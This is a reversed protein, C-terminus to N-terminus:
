TRTTFYSGFIYAQNDTSERDMRFALSLATDTLNPTYRITIPTDDKIPYDFTIKNKQYDVVFDIDEILETRVLTEEDDYLVVERLNDRPAVKTYLVINGNKDRYDASAVFNETWMDMKLPLNESTLDKMWLPNYTILIEGSSLDKRMSSKPILWKNDYDVTYNLHEIYSKDRLNVVLEIVDGTYGDEAVDYYLEDSDEGSVSDDGEESESVDLTGDLLRYCKIEGNSEFVVNKKFNTGDLNFVIGKKDDTLGFDAGNSFTHTTSYNEDFVLVNEIVGEQKNEINQPQQFVVNILDNELDRNLDLTYITNQADYKSSKFDEVEIIKEGLIKNCSILPYAPYHALDFYDFYEYYNEDDEPFSSIIYVPPELTTLHKLFDEDAQIANRFVDDNSFDSKQKTPYYDSYFEWLEDITDKRILITQQAQVERVIDIKVDTNLEQEYEANVESWICAPLMTESEPCYPLSRVYAKKSPHTHVIFQVSRLIPTKYKDTNKLNCRVILFTPNVSSLDYNGAGNGIEGVKNNNNFDEGDYSIDWLIENGDGLSQHCDGEDITLAYIPNTTPIKFYLYHNGVPTYIYKNDDKQEYGILEKKNGTNKTSKITKTPQVYVEFGFAVPMTHIDAHLKGYANKDYKIWTKGNDTSQYAAGYYYTGKMYNTYCSRPWGAIRYCSSRHSLPSRMVIAYKHGKTVVAKKDFKFTKIHAGTYANSDIFSKEVRAIPGGYPVGKKTKWIECSFPSASKKNSESIININVKTIYGTHQATFTQARCKTPIGETYPKKKWKSKINYNKDKDFGVYWWGNPKMAGYPGYCYSDLKPSGIKKTKQITTSKSSDKYIPKTLDDVQNTEISQKIRAFGNEGNDTVLIDVDNESRNFDIISEDNYYTIGNIKIVDDDQTNFNVGFYYEGGDDFQYCNKENKTGVRYGFSKIEDDYYPPHFRKRSEPDTLDLLKRIQQYLYEDNKCFQKLLEDTVKKKNGFTELGVNKYRAPCKTNVM